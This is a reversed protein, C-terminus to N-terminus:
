RLRRLERDLVNRQYERAEIDILSEDNDFVDRFYAIAPEEYDYAEEDDRGEFCWICGLVEGMNTFYLTDKRELSELCVPCRCNAM